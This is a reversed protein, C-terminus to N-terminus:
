FNTQKMKARFKKQIIFTYNIKALKQSITSLFLIM